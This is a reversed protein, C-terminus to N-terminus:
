PEGLELATPLLTRLAEPRDRSAAALTVVGFLGLNQCDLQSVLQAFEDEQDVLTLLQRLVPLWYTKTLATDPQNLTAFLQERSTQATQRTLWYAIAYELL